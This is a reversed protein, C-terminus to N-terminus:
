GLAQPGIRAKIENHHPVNVTPKEWVESLLVFLMCEFKM